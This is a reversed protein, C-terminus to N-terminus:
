AVGKRLKTLSAQAKDLIEPACEHCYNKPSNYPGGRVVLCSEGKPISHKGPKRHCKRKKEATEVSVHGLINRIAPM